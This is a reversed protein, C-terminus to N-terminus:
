GYRARLVSLCTPVVLMSQTKSRFLSRTEPRLMDFLWYGVAYGAVTAFAAGSLGFAPILVANLGINVCLGLM